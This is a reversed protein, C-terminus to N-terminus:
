GPDVIPAITADNLRIIDAPRLRLLLHEQGGGGYAYPLTAVAIDVVVPLHSPLGLPAVGGAPFGTVREVDEPGAARPRSIGCAAALLARNVRRTGSAIAVVHRGDDGVFVLTKLIQEAPVGIATAALPVTPMPVGPALFEYENLHLELFAVLHPPAGDPPHTM